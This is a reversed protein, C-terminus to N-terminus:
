PRGSEQISRHQMDFVGNNPYAIFRPALLSPSNVIGRLAGSGVFRFLIRLCEMIHAAPPLCFSFPVSGVFLGLDLRVSIFYSIFSFKFLWTCAALALSAPFGQSPQHCRVCLGVSVPRFASFHFLIIMFDILIPRHLGLM